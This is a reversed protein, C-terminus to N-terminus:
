DLLVLALLLANPVGELVSNLWLRPETFLLVFALFVHQAATFAILAEGQAGRDTAVLAVGAFLAVACTLNYYGVNISWLRVARTDEPEILFLRHLRQDRFLFSEMVWVSVLALGNAVALVQAVTSM